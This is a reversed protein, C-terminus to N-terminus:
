RLPNYWAPAWVPPTASMGCIGLAAHAATNSNRTFPNYPVRLNQIGAMADALCKDYKCCDEGDDRVNAVPLSKWGPDWDPTGPVYAGSDTVIPGWGSSSNSSAGSAGSTGQSSQKTGSSGSNSPGGSSPGGRYYSTSGDPDIVLIIGHNGIGLPGAPLFRVEIRCLGLPDGFLVPNGGAYSYRNLGGALGAPDESLFRGNGATYYRARYYYLSIEADWERGTYAYGASASGQPLNGWPDYERTLTAAGGSNTTQAVSGLHDALYYTVVGAQDRQALPRDLGAQVYDLTQTSGIREEIINGEEYVYTHTVGGSTKQQRRGSGDYVFTALVTAEQKVDVLPNEADWDYTRTGDATMNGNPDISVQLAGAVESLVWPTGKPRTQCPPFV